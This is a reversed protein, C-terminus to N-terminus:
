FKFAFLASELSFESGYYWSRRLVFRSVTEYYFHEKVREPRLDSDYLFLNM